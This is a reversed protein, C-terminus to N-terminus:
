EVARLNLTAPALGESTFTVTVPASPASDTADLAPTAGLAVYAVLRGQGLMKVPAQPATMDFNLANEMGLLRADGTLTCAVPAMSTRARNGQADVAEVLVQALTASRALLTARLGVAEGSTRVAYTALPNGQADCGECTLEGPAYPVVWTIIGTSPDYPTLQGVVEVSDPTAERRLLLRAQPTNTYCVVRINQGEDSYNWMDLAEISLWPRRVRTSDGEEGGRRRPQRDPYTGIYVVPQTAWLAQRFHGRPKLFGAFDVLGTGLGRSPWAGSEGLYDLGTWVFQGFIHRNNRVALWADYGVGTESGYIIRQSYADHDTQYRSETYNYGVVGVAEPYATQNSMVVGALAGTVPRTYDVSRVVGALRQAIEGIREARPADPKYGGYMPQSIASGDGDLVPHSYPDNPYDVENGISWLFVCPHNRDRRVMDAVDRDIWEAFFDASGEFGPEGKNWGRLWKRKPYEWEDSAEDIVLLGLEDCLDYLDPNQPNHSCRIANAGMAQLVQLRREWVERPVAAGLVGADHHVCVGKVKVNRGNLFFGEDPSFRLTRLGARYATCDVPMGNRRLQARFTYLYPSDLDWRHPKPLRLMSLAKGSSVGATQEAVVSDGVLFAFAVSYSGDDDAGEVASEVQVMAEKDSLSLLRYTTGWQALHVDPAKVMWVDRWIGSGTYWRSDAQRSHDVRVLLTDPTSADASLHDTLEYCFSVYGNPRYGLEHGNLWVTSRNYIGDFCVYFRAPEPQLSASPYLSASQLSDSQLSDSKLSDSKLSDPQLSVSSPRSFAKRYWGVGGPLYGTCSALTDSPTAEISWDHPLTVPRWEVSDLSFEWGDNWREAQGFGVPNSVQAQMGACLCVVALAPLLTRTKM